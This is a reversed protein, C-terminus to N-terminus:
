HRRQRIQEVVLDCEWKGKGGKRVKVKRVIRFGCKEFARLCRPNHEGVSCAFVRDAGDEFAYDMLLQIVESGYGKNWESKEGICVPM